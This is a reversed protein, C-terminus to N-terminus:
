MVQRFKSDRIVLGLVTAAALTVLFSGSLLLLPSISTWWSAKEGFLAAPVGFWEFAYLVAWSLGILLSVIVAREGVYRLFMAAFFVAGM